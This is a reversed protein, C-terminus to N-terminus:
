RIMVRTPGTGPRALPEPKPPDVIVKAPPQQAFPALATAKMPTLTPGVAGQAESFPIAQEGIAPLVVLGSILAAASAILISRGTSATLASCMTKSREPFIPKTKAGSAV